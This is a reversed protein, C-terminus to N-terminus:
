AWCMYMLIRDIWVNKKCLKKMILEVPARLPTVPLPLVLPVLAMKLDLFALRSNGTPRRARYRLSPRYTSRRLPVEGTWRAATRSYRAASPFVTYVYYM